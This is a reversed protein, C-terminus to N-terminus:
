GFLAITVGLVRTVPFLGLHQTSLHVFSLSEERMSLTDALRRETDDLIGLGDM